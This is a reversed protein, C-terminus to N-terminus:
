PASFIFYKIPKRLKDVNTWLLCGVIITYLIGKWYNLQDSAGKGSDFIAVLYIHFQLVLKQQILYRLHYFLM